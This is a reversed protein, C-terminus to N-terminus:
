AGVKKTGTPAKDAASGQDVIFMSALMLAAGLLQLGTPIEALVILAFLLAFVPELSLIVATTAPSTYKQAWTQFLFALTTAPIATVLLAAVVGPTFTIPLGEAGWGALISFLAVTGIQGAAFLFTNIQNTYRAVLIINLAFCLACGLTFLDGTNFMLRAPAGAWAAPAGAGFSLLGLGAAACLVGSIVQRAPRKKHIVATIVPVLVVSLGTIFASNAATTYQLGITQLSYGGFSCMGALLSYWVAKGTLDQRFLPLLLLMSLFAISFRVANFTFPPIDAIAVKVAVFTTGWIAAVLLLLGNAQHRKEM